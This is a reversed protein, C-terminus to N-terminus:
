NPLNTANPIHCVDGRRLETRPQPLLRALRLIFATRRVACVRQATHQHAGAMNPPESVMGPQGDAMEAMEGAM